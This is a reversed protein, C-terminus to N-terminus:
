QNIGHLTRVQLGITYNFVLVTNSAMMTYVDTVGEKSEVTDEPFTVENMLSSKHQKGVHGGFCRIANRSAPAIHSTAFFKKIPAM